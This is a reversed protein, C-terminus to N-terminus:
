FKAVRVGARQFEYAERSRTKKMGATVYLKSGECTICTVQAWMMGKTKMGEVDRLKGKELYGIVHTYFKLVSSDRYGVECIAPIYVTLRKTQENLEYNTADRPFIGVPLDYEQLLEALPKQVSGKVKNVLWTAGGEISNSMSNISNGVSGLERTARQNFWYSGVKGMIQDM